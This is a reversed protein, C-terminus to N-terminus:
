LHAAPKKGPGTRLQTIFRRERSKVMDTKNPTYPLPAPGPM